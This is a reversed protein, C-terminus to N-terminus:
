NWISIRFILRRGLLETSSASSLLTVNNNQVDVATTISTLGKPQYREQQRRRRTKNLSELMEVVVINRKSVAHAHPSPGNLLSVQSKLSPVRM